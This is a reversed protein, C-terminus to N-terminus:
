LKICFDAVKKLQPDFGVLIYGNLLRKPDAPIKLKFSDLLLFNYKIPFVLVVTKYVKFM